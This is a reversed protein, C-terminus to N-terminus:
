RKNPLTKSGWKKKSDRTGNHNRPLLYKILSIDYKKPKMKFRKYEKVINAFIISIM